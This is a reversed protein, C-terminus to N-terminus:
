RARKDPSFWTVQEGIAFGAWELQARLAGVQQPDVFLFYPPMQGKLYPKLKPSNALTQFVQLSSCYLAAVPELEVQAPQVTWNRLALELLAPIRKALRENLWGLLQELRYGAKLGAQVSDATLRWERAAKREAWTDLQAEIMLDHPGPKLRIVGNEDVSIFHPLAMSYDYCIVGKVQLSKQDAEALLLFRKEVITGTAGAQVAADLEEPSSFELLGAKRRLTVQERRAAWERIEVAVNQPLEVGSGSQLGALVADLSSGSELGRYISNRTLRYHATHVQAQGREAHRELFALQVPSTRELYTVIDFNPQVVWAPHSGEVIPPPASETEVKLQPHLVLRGLDTLRLGVVKEQDLGLEVLGLFYLWTTLAQEIWLLERALWKKRLQRRWNDLEKQERQRDEPTSMWGIYPRSPPYDLAFVEGVRGFLARDFDDLSYFSYGDVPLAALGLMLALRGERRGSGDRDMYPQGALEWWSGNRIIGDMLFRVQEHSPRIAFAEIPGNMELRSGTNQLLDSMGFANIWAGAPNPFPYNDVLMGDADWRLAKALKKQDSARVTGAKTLSVGGINQIAQLIGIIDLAVTSPRRLASQAPTPIPRISFPNVQVEGVAQLLRPDSYVKESSDYSYTNLHDPGYTGLALILGRRLLAEAIAHASRMDKAGGPLTGSAHIGVALAQVGVEGGMRKVLALANHEWPPLGAVARRVKAPDALGNTILTICEEKRLKATGGWLRAMPKLKDAGVSPLVADFYREMRM